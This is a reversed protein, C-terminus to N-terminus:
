APLLQTNPPVVLLEERVSSRKSGDHLYYLVSKDPKTVAKEITYVNLSWIHDIARKTGGELQGPQYLLRVNM